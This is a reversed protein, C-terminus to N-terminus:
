VRRWIASMLSVVLTSILLFSLCYIRNYVTLINLPTKDTYSDVYINSLNKFFANAIDSGDALGNINIIIIIIIIIVVFFVLYM